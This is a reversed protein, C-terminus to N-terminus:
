TQNSRKQALHSLNSSFPKKHWKRLFYSTTRSFTYWEESGCFELKLGLYKIIDCIASM